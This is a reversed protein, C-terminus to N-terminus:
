VFRPGLEREAENERHRVGEGVWVWLSSLVQSEEM